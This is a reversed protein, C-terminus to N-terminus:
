YMERRRVKPMLVKLSGTLKSRQCKTSNVLVECPTRLRLLKGKIVISVFSPHVDVDILSSDLFKALKVELILQGPQSEEDWVFDWGGENKQKM